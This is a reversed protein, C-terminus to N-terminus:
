IQYSISKKERYFRTLSDSMESIMKKRDFIKFFNERCLVKLSELENLTMMISEESYSTKDSMYYLNVGNIIESDVIKKSTKMDGLIVVDTKDYKM